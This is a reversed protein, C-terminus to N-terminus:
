RTHFPSFGRVAFFAPIPANILKQRLRRKEKIPPIIPQHLGKEIFPQGNEEAAMTPRIAGKGKPSLGKGDAGATGPQTSAKKRRRNKGPKPPRGEDQRHHQHDGKNDVADKLKFRTVLAAVEPTEEGTQEEGVPEDAEDHNTIDVGIM